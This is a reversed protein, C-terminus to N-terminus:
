TKQLFWRRGLFLCILTAFVLLLYLLDPLGFDDALSLCSLLILLIAALAFAPKWRRFLMISLFAQVMSGALFAASLFWRSAPDDPMSAPYGLPVLVAFLLWILANAALLLIASRGFLPSKNRTMMVGAKL